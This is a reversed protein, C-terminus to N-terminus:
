SAARLVLWAAHVFIVGVFMLVTFNRYILRNGALSWDPTVALLLFMPMFTGLHRTEISTVAISATFGALCFILFLVLASRQHFFTRAANWIAVAVAPIFLYNYLVHFSKVLHYFSELQFGVWFPIPFVWVYVSGLLIRIYDPQNIILDYGLSGEGGGLFDPGPRPGDIKPRALEAYKDQAESLQWLFGFWEGGRELLFPHWYLVATFVLISIGYARHSTGTGSHPTALLLALGGAMLMAIPLLVFEGRLYVFSFYAVTSAGFLLALRLHSPRALLIIWFLLLLTLCFFIMAERMFLAAYMWFIPTCAFMLGYLRSRRGEGDDILRACKIGVVATAAVFFTNVAIGIYRADALGVARCFEYIYHWVLIPGTSDVIGTQAFVHNGTAWTSALEYYFAPDSERQFFDGFQNAYIAAIGSWFAGIAFTILFARREAAGGVRPLFLLGLGIALLIALVLVPEVSSYSLGLTFAAALLLLSGVVVVPELRARAM